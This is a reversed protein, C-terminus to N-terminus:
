FEVNILEEAGKFRPKFSAPFPSLRVALTNEFRPEIEIETGDEDLMKGISFVQLMASIALFLSNMAMYRGPCVRRGFGFAYLFPDRPKGELFREPRFTDPDPAYEDMDHSMAWINPMVISGEPLDMGKYVDDATLRHPISFPVVPYWRLVEQALASIYPLSDRDDINPMRDRGVVKDLDNQAKQQVDPHVIMLYVFNLLVSTTTEFGALYANGSAFKVANLLKEKDGEKRYTSIRSLWSRTFSFAATGESFSKSIENFPVECSDIMGKGWIRANKKFQIGPIWDPIHKLTPFADVLFSGPVMGKLFENGDQAAKVYPDDVPKIDFGYTMDLLIGSSFYKIHNEFEAPNNKILKLLSNAYKMQIQIYKQSAKPNFEQQFIRRGLRWTEGYRMFAFLKGVDM